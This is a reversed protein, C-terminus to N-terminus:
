LSKRLIKEYVFGRVENPALFVASRALWHLGATTHNKLGCTALHTQLAWESKVYRLGSRRKYMDRGTTAHVLVEDSNKMRAGNKAMLAWLAYDEKLHIMPYGGCRRAMDTRFCVTMHNFPNRSPMRGMISLHTTPVSRIAIPSGQPTVEMIASGFLDVDESMTQSQKEFRHPANIDDSDARAVWDTEVWSLGSNLAAALGINKELAHIRMHLPQKWRDVITHTESGVPGDLVLVFDDPLKTNQAISSLAADLLPPHDGAYVSMLLTFATTRNQATKARAADVPPSYTKM